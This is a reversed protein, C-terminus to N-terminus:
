LPFDLELRWILTGQPAARTLGFLYGATYALDLKAIDLNGTLVPGLRHDQQSARDFELVRGPVGYFEIGPAVQETVQWTSIGIYRLRVGREANRGFDRDLLLNLTTSSPGLDKRLLAGTTATEPNQGDVAHDYEFFVATEPALEAQPVLRLANEVDISRPRMGGISDDWRSEIETWWYETVGYGVEGFHTQGANDSRGKKLTVASNDELDVAGEEESPPNIKIDIARAPLALSLTLLAALLPAALNPRPAAHPM